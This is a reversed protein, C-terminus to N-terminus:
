QGSASKSFVLVRDNGGFDRVRELLLFSAEEFLAAVACHQDFGTEVAIRGGPALHANARAAIARYADLGDPGGDLAAVPDFDRVEPELGAIEGTPIYPPNSVILDFVGEINTFWASKVTEFRNRVGARRANDRATRLADESIDSGVGRATAVESLVALCIAGSGTGLDLLRCGGNQAAHNKAFPLVARVLTETDPRPELTEASLALDLGFFPRHGLIRHVPERGCRRAAAARVQELENASVPAERDLVLETLGIDLLGCVLARADSDPEPLGETEFRRKLEAVLADRTSGAPLGEDPM